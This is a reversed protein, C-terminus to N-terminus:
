VLHSFYVGLSVYWYKAKVSLLVLVHLIYLEVNTIFDDRILAALPLGM